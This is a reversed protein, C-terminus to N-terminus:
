QGPAIANLNEGAAYGPQAISPQTPRYAQREVATLSEPDVRYDTVQYGLPNIARDTDSMPLGVYKFTVTAAWHSLEPRDTSRIIEKVFRVHAVNPKIFSTSKISINVKAYKGFVVLPSQPNKPNFFDFYRQQETNASLLGVTQYSVDATERFYGERARVYIQAFYKNISEDYNTNGDKLSNVVEVIGTTNDVRIVYPEVTKLPVLATLSAVALLAIITTAGAVRWALRRSAQEQFVKDTEWSQVESVYKDISSKGSPDKKM